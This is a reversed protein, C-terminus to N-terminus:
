ALQGGKVKSLHKRVCNIESINAGSNILIENARTLDNLSSDEPYDALLASSGGSILCLVLDNRGAKEAIDQIQRTAEVGKKDPIPHGAEVISLYKLKGGHGYKTVVLGGTVRNGLIE